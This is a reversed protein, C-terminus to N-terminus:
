LSVNVKETLEGAAREIEVHDVARARELAADRLKMSRDVLVDPTLLERREAESAHYEPIAATELIVHYGFATKVIGSQKGVGGIKFVAAAFTPDYTGVKSGPPPPVEPDVVRGDETVPELDQIRIDFGPETVTSAAQRFSGADTAKAVADALRRALLAVRAEDKGESMVVAHTTRVLAPRDLAWWRRETERALEDTTIPGAATAEASIAELMARALARRDAARLRSPHSRARADAALLADSVASSLAARVDVGKAAAIRGVTEAAIADTSVVAVAGPPVAMAPGSPTAERSGCAAALVSIPVVSVVSVVSVLIRGVRM